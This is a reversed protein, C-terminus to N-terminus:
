EDHVAENGSRTALAPMIPAKTYHFFRVSGDGLLFNVGGPHLSWFHYRDCPNDIRGPGIGSESVICNDGSLAAPINMANDPGVYYGNSWLHMSYWGGAVGNHPPPREGAMLTQSLGDTVEGFNPGAPVQGLLGPSPVWTQPGIQTSGLPSGSVGLYSSCALRKGDPLTLPLRLRRDNPCLYAQVPTVYGEHPPHHYPIPDNACATLAANWMPEQDLHPLILARWQLLRNLDHPDSTLPRPPLCRFIDHHLHLAAGIQRLNNQCEVRSAGERSYQVAPLMLCILIGIITFVIILELLTFAKCANANRSTSNNLTRSM